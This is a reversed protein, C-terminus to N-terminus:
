RPAFVPVTAPLESPTRAPELEYVRRLAEAADRPRGTRWYVDALSEYVATLRPACASAQLLYAEAEAWRAAAMLTRGLDALAYCQRPENVLVHRFINEALDLQGAGLAARGVLQVAGLDNPALPALRRAYALSQTYNFRKRVPDDDGAALRLHSEALLRLVVPDDPNNQLSRQLPPIANAYDGTAFRAKGLLVQSWAASRIREAEELDNVADAWRGLAGWCYSRSALLAYRLRPDRTRFLGESAARIAFPWNGLASLAM